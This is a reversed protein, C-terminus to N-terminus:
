TQLTLFLGRQSCQAPYANLPTFYIIVDSSLLFLIYASVGLGNQFQLSNGISTPIASLSSAPRHLVVSAQAHNAESCWCIM